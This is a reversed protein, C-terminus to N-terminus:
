QGDSNEVRTGTAQFRRESKQEAKRQGHQGEKQANSDERRNHGHEGAQKFEGTKGQEGM